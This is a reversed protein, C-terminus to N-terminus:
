SQNVCVAWGFADIDENVGSDHAIGVQWATGDDTAASQVMRGIGPNTTSVGGGIAILGDPCPVLWTLTQNLPIIREETPYQLAASGPPGPDGQPGDPGQPGRLVGGLVDAAKVSHDRVDVGRVTGNHVDVSRITDDKIQRTGILVAATSSGVFSVALAAVVALV